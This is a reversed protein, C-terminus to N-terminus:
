SSAVANVPSHAKEAAPRVVLVPCPANRLLKSAVSGFFFRDLGSRSHTGCVLIDRPGLRRPIETGPAGAVVHVKVDQGATKAVIARVLAPASDLHKALVESARRLTTDEGSPLVPAIYATPLIPPLHAAHIA